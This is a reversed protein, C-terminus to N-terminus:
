LFTRVLYALQFLTSTFLVMRIIKYFLTDKDKFVFLLLITTFIGVIGFWFSLHTAIACSVSETENRNFACPLVSEHSIKIMGLNIIGSILYVIKGM